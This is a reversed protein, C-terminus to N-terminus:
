ESNACALYIIPRFHNSVGALPILVAYNFGLLIAKDIDHDRVATVEINTHLGMRVEKVRIELQPHHTLSPLPLSRLNVGPLNDDAGYFTLIRILILAM